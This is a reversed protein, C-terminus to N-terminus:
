GASPLNKTRKHDAGLESHPLERGIDKAARQLPAYEHHNKTSRWLNLIRQYIVDEPEDIVEVTVRTRRVDVIGNFCSPYDRKLSHLEYPGIKRFTEITTKKMEKRRFDNIPRKSKLADGCDNGM